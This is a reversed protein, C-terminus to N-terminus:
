VKLLSEDFWVDVYDGAVLFRCGPPLGLFRLAEPCRELLHRTHLPEFFDPEQSLEEGCWIYCGNTDGAPPHRMGNIPVKGQTRIAFGLKSELDAPVYDYGKEECLARQVSSINSSLLSSPVALM